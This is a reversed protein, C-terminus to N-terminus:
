SINMEGYLLTGPKDTNFRCVSGSEVETVYLTKRDIGGFAVNTPNMGGVPVTEILEGKPNIVLVHGSGYHAVHLNGADDMAMGDPGWGGSLQCFITSRVPDDLIYKLIRNKRTIAVFLHREDHSLVLGNPYALRSALLTIEGDVSLRYLSGVPNEASSGHPDTFYLNGKSDFVLDNPGNLSKGRYQDVIVRTSGDPSIAIIGKDRDAQISL